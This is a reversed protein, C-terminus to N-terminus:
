QSQFLKTLAQQLNDKFESTIKERFQSSFFWRQNHEVIPKCQALILAKQKSDLKAFESMLATIAGLRKVCDTENDYSEDWCSGFTKFGYSRLYELSGPSSALMFPQGCAIPRLIKETLHWKESDFVTELVVEIRTNQYDKSCYDASAWSAAETRQFETHLNYNTIALNSNVFKHNTYHCNQDVPNFWTCCNGVLNHHVLLEIFKLRYERSGTWARNYILFDQNANRRQLAPDFEAYRFWDRAIIAHTWYYVGISGHNEFWRLDSSNKESHCLLIKQWQSGTMGTIVKLVAPPPFTFQNVLTYPEFDKKDLQEQDHCVM